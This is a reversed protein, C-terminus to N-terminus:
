WSWTGIKWKEIPLQGQANDGNPTPVHSAPTLVIAEIHV